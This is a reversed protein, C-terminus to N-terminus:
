VGDEGGAKADGIKARRIEKGMFGVVGYGDITVIYIDQWDIRDDDGYATIHLQEDAFKPGFDSFLRRIHALLGARGDVEVVTKMSEALSGRHERFKIIIERDSGERDRLPVAAVRERECKEWYRRWNMSWGESTKPQKPPIPKANSILEFLESLALKVELDIDSRLLAGLQASKAAEIRDMMRSGCRDIIKLIEPNQTDLIM